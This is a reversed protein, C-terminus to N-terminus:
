ELASCCLQLQANYGREDVWTARSTEVEYALEQRLDDLRDAATYAFQLRAGLTDVGATLQRVQEVLQAKTMVGPDADLAAATLHLVTGAPGAGVAGGPMALGWNVMPATLGLSYGPSLSASVSALPGPPIQPPGQGPEMGDLVLVRGTHAWLGPSRSPSGAHPAYSRMGKGAQGATLRGTAGDVMFGKQPTATVHRTRFRDPSSGRSGGPSGGGGSSSVGYPDHSGRPPSVSRAAGAYASKPRQHAGPHLQASRARDRDRGGAMAGATMPRQQQQQHHYQQGGSSGGTADAGFAQYRGPSGPAARPTPTKQSIALMPALASYAADSSVIVGTNSMDSVRVTGSATTLTLAPAGWGPARYYGQSAGGSLSAAAAGGAPGGGAPGGWDDQPQAARANLGEAWAPARRGGGPSLMGPTAAAGDDGRADGGGGGGGGDDVLFAFANLPQLRPAHASGGGGGRGTGSADSDGHGWSLLGGRALSGRPSPVRSGAEEGEEGEATTAPVGLGHALSAAGDLDSNSARVPVGHAQPGAGAGAGAGVGAGAGAGAGGGAPAGRASLFPANADHLPQGLPGHQQYGNSARASGPAGSAALDGLGVSALRLMPVAGFFGTSARPTPAYSASRPTSLEKLREAVEVMIEVAAAGGEGSAGPLRLQTTAPVVEGGEYARLKELAEHLSEELLVIEENADYLAEELEEANAQGESGDSSLAADTGTAEDVGRGGGGGGGSGSGSGGSAYGRSARPTQGIGRDIGMGTRSRRVVGSSSRPTMATGADPANSRAFLADAAASSVSLLEGELEAVRAALADREAELLGAAEAAGSISLAPSAVRPTPPRVDAAAAAIRAAEADRLLKLQAALGDRQAKGAALKAEAVVLAAKAAAGAAAAATAADQAKELQVKLAAMEMVAGLGDSAGSATSGAESPRVSPTGGPATPGTASASDSLNKLQFRLGETTRMLDTYQTKFDQAAVKLAKNNDRLSFMEQLEVQREEDWEAKMETAVRDVEERVCRRFHAKLAAGVGTPDPRDRSSLEDGLDLQEADVHQDAGGRSRDGMVAAVWGKLDRMVENRERMREQHEEVSLAETMGSVRWNVSQHKVFMPPRHMMGGRHHHQAAALPDRTMLGGADGDGGNDGDEDDDGDEEAARLRDVLSMRSGDANHHVEGTASADGADADADSKAISYRGPRATREKQASSLASALRQGPPLKESSGKVSEQSALVRKVSSLKGPSGMSSTVSDRSARVMSTARNAAVLSPLSTTSSAVSDTREKAVAAAALPRRNRQVM